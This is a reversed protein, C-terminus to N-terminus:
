NCTKMGDLKGYDADNIDTIRINAGSKSINFSNDSVQFNTINGNEDFEVYYKIDTTLDLNHNISGDFCTIVESSIASSIYATQATQLLKQADNIFQTKPSTIEPQNYQYEEEEEKLYKSLTIMPSAIIVLLAIVIILEIAIFIEILFGKDKM